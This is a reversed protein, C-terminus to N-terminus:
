MTAVCIQSSSPEFGEQSMRKEHRGYHWDEGMDLENLVLLGLAKPLFLYEIAELRPWM